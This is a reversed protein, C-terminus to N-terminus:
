RRARKLVFDHKFVFIPDHALTAARKRAVADQIGFLEAILEELPPACALLLESIEVRTFAQGDSTRYRLLKDHLGADRARLRALYDADLRELTEREFLQAFRYGNNLKLETNSM